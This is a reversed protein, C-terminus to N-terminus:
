YTAQESTSFLYFLYIMLIFGVSRVHLNERVHLRPVPFHFVQLQLAIIVSCNSHPTSVAAAGSVCVTLYFAAHVDPNNSYVLVIVLIFVGSFILKNGTIFIFANKVFLFGLIM